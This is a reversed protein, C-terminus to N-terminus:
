HRIKWLFALTLGLLTNTPVFLRKDCSPLLGQELAQLRLPFTCPECSILNFEMRQESLGRKLHRKEKLRWKARARCLWIGGLTICVSHASSSTQTGGSAKHQRSCDAGAETGLEAMKDGCAHGRGRSRLSLVGKNLVIFSPQLKFCPSVLQTTYCLTSLLMHFLYFVSFVIKKKIHSLNYQPM